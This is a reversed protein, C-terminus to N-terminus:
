QDVPYLAKQLNQLFKQRKLFHRNVIQFHSNPVTKMAKFVKKALLEAGIPKLHVQDKFFEPNWVRGLHESDVSFDARVNVYLANHALCLPELLSSFEEFFTEHAIHASPLPSILIIKITPFKQGIALVQSSLETVYTVADRAQQERQARSVKHLKGKRYANRINSGGLMIVHVASKGLQTQSLSHEFQILFDTDLLKGGYSNNAFLEFRSEEKLAQRLSEPFGHRDSLHSDAWLVVKVKTGQVVGSADPHPQTSPGSPQPQRSAM